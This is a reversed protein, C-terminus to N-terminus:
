YLKFTKGFKKCYVVRYNEPKRQYLTFPQINSIIKYDKEFM